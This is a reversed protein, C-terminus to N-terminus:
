LASLKWEFKCSYNEQSNRIGKNLFYNDITMQGGKLRITHSIARRRGRGLQHRDLQSAFLKVPQPLSRKGYKARPGFDSAGVLRGKEEERTVSFYWVGDSAAGFM